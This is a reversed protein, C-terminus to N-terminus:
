LPVSRTLNAPLSLGLRRGLVPSAGTATEREPFMLVVSLEVPGYVVVLWIAIFVAYASFKLRDATAGTILAPTIIAFTMQFACFLIFPITLYSIM